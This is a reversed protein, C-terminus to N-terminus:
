RPELATQLANVQRQAALLQREAERALDCQRALMTANASLDSSLREIEKSASLETQVLKEDKEALAAQMVVTAQKLLVTCSCCTHGNDSM